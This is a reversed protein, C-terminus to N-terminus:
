LSLNIIGNVDFISTFSEYLETLRRGPTGFGTPKGCARAPSPNLWLSTIDEAM